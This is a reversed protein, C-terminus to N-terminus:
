IECFAQDVTVTLIVSFTKKKNQKQKTKENTPLKLFVHDTGM